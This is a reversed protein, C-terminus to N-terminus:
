LNNDTAYQKLLREQRNILEQRENSEQRGRNARRDSALILSAEVNRRGGKTRGQEEALSLRNVRAFGSEIADATKKLQEYDIKGKENIINEENVISKKLEAFIRNKETDAL